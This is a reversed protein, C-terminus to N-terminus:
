KDDDDFSTSDLLCLGRGAIWQRLQKRNLFLLQEEERGEPLTQTHCFLTVLQSATLDELSSLTVQFPAEEELTDDPHVVDLRVLQDGTIGFVLDSDVFETVIDDMRTIFKPVRSAGDAAM